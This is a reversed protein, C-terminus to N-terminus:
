KKKQTASMLAAIDDASKIENRTRKFVVNFSDEGRGNDFSYRLAVERKGDNGIMRVQSLSKQIGTKYSARPNKLEAFDELPLNSLNMRVNTLFDGDNAGLLPGSASIMEGEQSLVTVRLGSRGNIVEFSEVIVTKVSNSGKIGRSTNDFMKVLKEFSGNGSMTKPMKFDYNANTKRSIVGVIAKKGAENISLRVYATFCTKENQDMCVLHGSIAMKSNTAVLKTTGRADLAGALLINENKSGVHMIVNVAADGTRRDLRVNVARISEAVKVNRAKSAKDTSAADLRQIMESRLSDEGAGTFKTGVNHVLPTSAPFQTEVKAQNASSGTKAMETKALAKEDTSNSKKDAYDSEEEDSSKVKPSDLKPATKNTSGEGPLQINKASEQKAPAAPTTHPKSGGGGGSNKSCASMLSLVMLPLISKIWLNKM